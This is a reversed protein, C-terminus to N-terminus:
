GLSSYQFSKIELIETITSISGPSFSVTDEVDDVDLLLLTRIITELIETTTAVSAVTLVVSDDVDGVDLTLLARSITELIETATSTTTISINLPTEDSIGIDGSTALYTSSISFHDTAQTTNGTVAQLLHITDVIGGNIYTSAGPTVGSLNVTTVTAYNAGEKTLLQISFPQISPVLTQSVASFVVSRNPNNVLTTGASEFAPLLYQYTLEGSLSNLSSSSVTRISGISSTVYDTPIATVLIEGVKEYITNRDLYFRFVKDNRIAPQLFTVNPQYRSEMWTVPEGSLQVWEFTHGTLDGVLSANLTVYDSCTVSLTSEVSLLVNNTIYNM